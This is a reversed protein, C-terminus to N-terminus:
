HLITEDLITEDPIEKRDIVKYGSNSFFYGRNDFFGNGGYIYKVDYDKQSLVSGLTFMNENGPRRVISQVPTPPISLSLAELGRVICTGTAYFRSFFLSKQTLSDLFPTLGQPQHGFYNMFDASFSEM